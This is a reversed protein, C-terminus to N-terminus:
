IYSLPIPPGGPDPIRRLGIDRCTTGFGKDLSWAMTVGSGRFLSCNPSYGLSQKAEEQIFRSLQTVYDSHLQEIVSSSIKVRERNRESLESGIQNPPRLGVPTFLHSSESGAAQAYELKGQSHDLNRGLENDAGTCM